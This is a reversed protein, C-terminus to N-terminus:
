RSASAASVGAHEAPASLPPINPPSPGSSAQATAGATAEPLLHHATVIGAAGVAALSRLTTGLINVRHVIGGYFGAVGPTMLAVLVTVALAWGTAGVDVSGPGLDM